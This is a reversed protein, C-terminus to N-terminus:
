AKDRIRWAAGTANDMVEVNLATLEARIRDAETFNKAARAEIRSAILGEIRSKLEEDIGGQFWEEPDDQLLGILGGCKRLIDRRHRLDDSKEKIAARVREAMEFLVSYVAPTNLDDELAAVFRASEV